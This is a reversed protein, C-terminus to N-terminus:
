GVHELIYDQMIADDAQRLYISNKPWPWNQSAGSEDAKEARRKEERIRAEV